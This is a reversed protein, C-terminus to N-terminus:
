RSPASVKVTLSFWTDVPVQCAATSWPKKAMKSTAIPPDYGFLTHPQVDGEASMLEPAPILTSQIPTYWVLLPLLVEEPVDAPVDM